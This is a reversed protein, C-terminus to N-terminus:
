GAPPTLAPLNGFVGNKLCKTMRALSEMSENVEQKGVIWWPVIELFGTNLNGQHDSAHHLPRSPLHPSKSIIDTDKLRNAAYLYIHIIWAIHFGRAGELSAIQREKFCDRM